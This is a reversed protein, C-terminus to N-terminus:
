QISFNGALLIYLANIKTKHDWASSSSANYLSALQWENLKSAQNISCVIEFM